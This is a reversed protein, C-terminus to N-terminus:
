DTVIILPTLRHEADLAVEIPGIYLAAGSAHRANAFGFGAPEACSTSAKTIRDIPEHGVHGAASSISFHVGVHGADARVAFRFDAPRHAAARFVGERRIPRDLGFVEIHIEALDIAGIAAAANRGAHLEFFVDHSAAQVILESSKRSNGSLVGPRFARPKRQFSAVSTGSVEPTITRSVNEVRGGWSCFLKGSSRSPETRRRNPLYATAQRLPPLM